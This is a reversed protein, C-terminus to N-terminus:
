VFSRFAPIYVFIAFLQSHAMPNLVILTGRSLTFDTFTIKLTTSSQTLKLENRCSQIKPLLPLFAKM